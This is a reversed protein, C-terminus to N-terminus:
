RAPVAYLERWNDYRADLDNDWVRELSEESLASWGQRESLPDFLETLSFLIDLAKAIIEDQSINKAQALQRLRSVHNSSLHIEQAILTPTEIM